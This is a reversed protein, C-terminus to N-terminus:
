SCAYTENSKGVHMVPDCKKLHHLVFHEKVAQFSGQFACEASICARCKISRCQEKIHTELATLKMKDGCKWPCYVETDLLTSNFFYGRENFQFKGSFQLRCIPCNTKFSWEAHALADINRDLLRQAEAFKGQQQLSYYRTRWKFQLFTKIDFVQSSHSKACHVGMQHLCDMCLMHPHNRCKWAIPTNESWCVSCTSMISPNIVTPEPETISNQSPSVIRNQSKKREKPRTSHCPIFSFSLSPQQCLRGLRQPAFGGWDNHTM